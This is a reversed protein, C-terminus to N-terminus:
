IKITHIDTPTSFDDKDPIVLIDKGAYKTLVNKLEQSNIKNLVQQLRNQDPFQCHANKDIETLTFLKLFESVTDKDELGYILPEQNSFPYNTFLLKM